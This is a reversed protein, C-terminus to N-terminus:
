SNQTCPRHREAIVAIKSLFDNLSLSMKMTNCISCCSVMNGCVYGESSNIRDIGVTKIEDGCYHCPKQWFSMFEDFTVLFELNRLKASERYDWYRGRPSRSWVRRTANIKEKNRSNSIKRSVSNHCFKCRSAVGYKHRKELYFESILKIERCLSCQKVTGIGSDPVPCEAPTREIEAM